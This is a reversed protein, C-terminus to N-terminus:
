LEDNKDKIIMKKVAEIAVKIARTTDFVRSVDGSESHKTVNWIALLVAGARLGRTMAVSFISACEMESCLCGLKLYANWKDLLYDKIAMTEPNTEGYFSDKSQIVGAIYRNGPTNDSHIKASECLACTVSFDAAAPVSIPMYEKSTGDDRVAATAIILDGADVKEGMGGSTGVRIFTHCGCLALEEVCIAASPGGIGTSAVSVKKGLLSGTYIQFERNFAIKKADDLHEAIKPVRGPDGCLIVYKGVDDSKVKLHFQKEDGAINIM